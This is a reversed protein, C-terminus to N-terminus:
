AAGKPFPGMVFTSREIEGHEYEERTAEKTLNMGGDGIEAHYYIESQGHMRELLAPSAELQLWIEDPWHGGQNAAIRRERVYNYILAPVKGSFLEEGQETLPIGVVIKVVTRM